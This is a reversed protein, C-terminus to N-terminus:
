NKMQNMVKKNMQNMVARETKSTTRVTKKNRQIMVAIPHIMHIM